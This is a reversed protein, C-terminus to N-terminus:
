CKIEQPNEIMYGHLTTLGETYDAMCDPVEKLYLSYTEKTRYEDPGYRPSIFHGFGIFSFGILQHNDYLPIFPQFNDCNM